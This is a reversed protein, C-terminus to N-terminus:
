LVGCLLGGEGIQHIEDLQFITGKGPHLDRHFIRKGIQRIRLFEIGLRHQLQIHIDKALVGDAGHYPAVVIRISQVTHQQFNFVVTLLRHPIQQLHEMVLQRAHVDRFTTRQLKHVNM